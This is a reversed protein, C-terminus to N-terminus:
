WFCGCCRGRTNLQQYFWLTAVDFFFVTKRKTESALSKKDRSRCVSQHRPPPCVGQLSPHYWRPQTCYLHLLPSPFALCRWCGLRGVLANIERRRGTVARCKSMLCRERESSTNCCHEICPCTHTTIVQDWFSCPPAQATYHLASKMSLLMVRLVRHHPSARCADALGHESRLLLGRWCM